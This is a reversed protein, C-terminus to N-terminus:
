SHFGNTGRGWARKAAYDFLMYIREADLSPFTLGAEAMVQRANDMCFHPNHAVRPTVVDYQDWLLSEALSCKGLVEDPDAFRGGYLGFYQEYCRKMMDNTPPEPNTLHYIRGHFQPRTVVEAIMRSVFDVPVLNQRDEPRGPIRLPIYTSKGNNPNAFREKLTGILRAFQYFGAFQTTHGTASDGVLFSPRFVTLSHGIWSAWEELLTEAQWKSREYDTQFSPAPVHFEEPILGTKWGCTYATSVAYMRIVNHRIAWDILGQTGEVNTTFPERSGNAFLSLSAACSLIADTRGWDPEPLDNPLSGAVLVLQGRKLYGAPDLGISEMMGRLRESSDALPPRLVAVIREGKTLLDRLVYHGLFGTAGTVLTTESRWSRM